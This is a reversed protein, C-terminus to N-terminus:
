LVNRGMGFVVYAAILIYIIRSLWVPLKLDEYNIYRYALYIFLGAYFPILGFTLQNCCWAGYIDGHSLCLVMGTIGCGPCRYGTIREFPCRIGMGLYIIALYYLGGTIILLTAAAILKLIRKKRNKQEQNMRVKKQAVM